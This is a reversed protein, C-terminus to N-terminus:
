RSVVAQPTRRLILQTDRKKQGVVDTEFLPDRARIPIVVFYVHYCVRAVTTADLAVPVTPLDLFRDFGGFGVV